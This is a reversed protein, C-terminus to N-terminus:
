GLGLGQPTNSSKTQQPQATTGGVATTVLSALAGAVATVGSAAPSGPKVLAFLIAIYIIGVVAYWFWTKENM